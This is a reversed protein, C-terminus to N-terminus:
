GQTEVLQKIVPLTGRWYFELHNKISTTPFNELNVTLVTHDNEANLIFELKTYHEPEDALMSQSSLHTYSLIQPEQFKLVIGKIEFQTHHFGSILIPSNLQWNTRVQLAMEVDGMWQSMLGPDTIAKWVKATEANISIETSYNGTM